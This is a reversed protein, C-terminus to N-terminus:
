KMPISEDVYIKLLLNTNVVVHIVFLPHCAPLILDRRQVLGELDESPMVLSIRQSWALPQIAYHCGFIM